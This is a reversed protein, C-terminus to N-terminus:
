PKGRKMIEMCAYSIEDAYYGANPSGMEEALNRAEGADKIIFQLTEIPLARLRKQYAGHDMAKIPGM